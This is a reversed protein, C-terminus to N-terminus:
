KIDYYISFNRVGFNRAAGNIGAGSNYYSSVFFYIPIGVQVSITTGIGTYADNDSGITFIRSTLGLNPQTNVFTGVPTRYDIQCVGAQTTRYVNNGMYSEQMAPLYAMINTPYYTYNESDSDYYRYGRAEATIVIEGTFRPVFKHILVGFSSYGNQNSIGTTYETLNQERVNNSAVYTGGGVSRWEEWSNESGARIYERGTSLGYAKQIDKGGSNDVWPRYTILQCFNEEPLGIINGSKFEHYVNQGSYQSPALNTLRTDSISVKHSFDAFLGSGPGDNGSHWIYSWQDNTLHTLHGMGNVSLAAYKKTGSNDLYYFGAGHSASGPSGGNVDIVYGNGLTLMGNMSQSGDKPLAGDAKAQAAAAATVGASGRDYADKVAKVTAALVESTSNIASSLQVKGKVTLSADPITAGSVATDVYGKNAIDAAVSPAVVQARGAADRTMLTSVTPAATAGHATGGLAAHTNLNTQVADVTDKRAIDAAASPAAVQARGSADRKMLTSVTGANTAADLVTKIAAITMGPLTRWTAGGTIAKIMNALWGFLTTPTGSDGTPATTDSVTRGGIVTDTAAGAALGNSGIKPGDGAVGTHGHGSSAGFKGDLVDSNSNLDEINVVDEAGPKKLGLNNTTQM